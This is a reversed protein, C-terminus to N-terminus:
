GVLECQSICEYENPDVKCNNVCIKKDKDSSIAGARIGTRVHLLTKMAPPITKHKKM